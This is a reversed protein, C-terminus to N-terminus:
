RIVKLDANEILLFGYCGERHNHFKMELELLSIPPTQLSISSTGALQDASVSLSAADEWGGLQCLSSNSQLLHLHDRQKMMDSSLNLVHLCQSSLVNIHADACLNLVVDVAVRM